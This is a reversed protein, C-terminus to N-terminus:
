LPASVGTTNPNNDNNIFAISISQSIGGSLNMDTSQKPMGDIYNWIMKQAAIDNYKVAKAYVKDVFAQKNTKEQGPPIEQLFKRMLFTISEDKQPAGKPNPSPIGKKWATSPAKNAM